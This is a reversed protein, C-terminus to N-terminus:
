ERDASTQSTAEFDSKRRIKLTNDGFIDVNISDIVCCKEKSYVVINLGRKSLSYDVGNIWIASKTYRQSDMRCSYLWCINGKATDANEESHVEDAIDEFQYQCSVGDYNESMAEKRVSNDADILAVYSMRWKEGLDKELGLLKRNEFCDWYKNASDYVSILVVIHELKVLEATYGNLETCGYLSGFRESRVPAGHTSGKIFYQSERIINESLTHTEDASLMIYTVTEKYTIRDTLGRNKSYTFDNKLLLLFVIICNINLRFWRMMDMMGCQAGIMLCGMQGLALVTVPPATLRYTGNLTEEKDSGANTFVTYGLKNFYNITEEMLEPPLSSSSYSNPLLIVTKSPVANHEDLIRQANSISMGNVRGPLRLMENAFSLDSPLMYERKIAPSIGFDDQYIRYGSSGCNSLYYQLDAMESKQLVIIRDINPYIKAMDAIAGLAVVVIKDIPFTQHETHYKKFVSILPLTRAADGLHKDKIFYHNGDGTEFHKAAIEYGRIFRKISNIFQPRDCEDLEKVAFSVMSQTVNVCSDVGNNKCIDKFTKAIFDSTEGLNEGYFLKGNVISFESM